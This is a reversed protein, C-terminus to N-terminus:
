LKLYNTFIRPWHLSTGVSVAAGHEEPDLEDEGEEVEWDEETEAQEWPKM